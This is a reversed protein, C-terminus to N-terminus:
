GTEREEETRVQAWLREARAYVARDRTSAPVAALLRTAQLRLPHRVRGDTYFRECKACTGWQGVVIPQDCTCRGHADKISACQAHYLGPEGQWWRGRPGDWSAAVNVTDGRRSPGGCWACRTLLWRRLDQLPRVQIKWHHIHFRWGHLIKSSWTGDPNQWRRYHRCVEGSDHGNPEVHWVTILTPWYYGHGAITWFVSYSGPRWWPFPNRRAHAAQKDGCWSGCKHRLRMTWRLGEPKADHLKSRQPWPRRIEFAVVMPDHM